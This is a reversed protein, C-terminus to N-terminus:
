IRLVYNVNNKSTHSQKGKYSYKIPFFGVFILINSFEFNTMNRYNKLKESILIHTLSESNCTKFVKCQIETKLTQM